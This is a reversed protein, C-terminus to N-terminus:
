VRPATRNNLTYTVVIRLPVILLEAESRFISSFSM